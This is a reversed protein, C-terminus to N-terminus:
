KIGRRRDYQNAAENAADFWIGYCPKLTEGLIKGNSDVLMELAKTFVLMDADQTGQGYEERKVRKLAIEDAVIFINRSLWFGQQYEVLSRWGFKVRMLCRMPTDIQPPIKTVYEKEIAKENADLGNIYQYLTDESLESEFKEFFNSGLDIWVAGDLERDEVWKKITEVIDPVANCRYKGELRSYFGINKENTDERTSLALIAETLSSFDLMHWLTQVRPSKQYLVPTLPTKESKYAFEIPLQPGDYNWSGKLKLGRSNWYLSGWCIM